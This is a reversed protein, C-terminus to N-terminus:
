SGSSLEQGTTKNAMQPGDPTISWSELRIEKRALVTTIFELTCREEYIQM